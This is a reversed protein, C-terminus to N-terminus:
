PNSLNNGLRAVRGIPVNQNQYETVRKLLLMEGRKFISESPQTKLSTQEVLFKKTFTEVFEGDLSVGLREAFRSLAVEGEKFRGRSYLNQFSEPLIFYALGFPLSEIRNM